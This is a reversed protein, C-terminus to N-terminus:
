QKLPPLDRTQSPCRFGIRNHAGDCFPTNESAGWRCLGIQTRGGLGYSKGAADKLEFDGGVILPGNSRCKIECAAMDAEETKELM